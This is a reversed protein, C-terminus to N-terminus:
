LRNFLSSALAIPHAHIAEEEIKDGARYDSESFLIQKLIRLACM